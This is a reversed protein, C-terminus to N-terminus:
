TPSVKGPQRTLTRDLNAKFASRLDSKSRATACLLSALGYLPPVQYRLMLSDLNFGGELIAASMGMESQVVMESMEKHCALVTGRQMILKLGIQACGVAFRVLGKLVVSSVQAYRCDFQGLVALMTSSLQDLVILISKSGHPM